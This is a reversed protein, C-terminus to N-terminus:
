CDHNKEKAFRLWHEWVRDTNRPRFLGVHGISPRGLAEPTIDVRTVDTSRFRQLLDDVARPPAIDDDSIAYALIPGSFRAYRADAGEIHTMLWDSGRGWSLWERAVGGPLEEGVVWKPIPDFFRTTVPLLARWLLEVKLRSLGDWHHPHGLQSGVLIAARAEHLEEAIGLAQGGFSHGLLVPVTSYRKCVFRFAGVADARAWKSLSATAIGEQTASEGIGRYDVSVLRVGREALWDGVHRFVRQPVGIGPLALITAHTRGIPEYVRGCLPHGDVATIEVANAAAKRSDPLPSCLTQESM